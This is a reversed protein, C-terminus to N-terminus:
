DQDSPAIQSWSVLPATSSPGRKVVADGRPGVAAIASNAGQSPGPGVAAIASNGPLASAFGDTELGSYEDLELEIRVDDM